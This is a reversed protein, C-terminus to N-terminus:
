QYSIFLLSVCACVHVCKSFSLFLFYISALGNVLRVAGGGQARDGRARAGGGENELIVTQVITVLPVEPIPNKISL